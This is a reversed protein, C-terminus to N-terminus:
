PLEMAAENNQAALRTVLFVMLSILIAKTKM